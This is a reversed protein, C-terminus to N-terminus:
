VMFSKENHARRARVLDECQRVQLMIQLQLDKLVLGRCLSANRLTQNVQHKAEPRRQGTQDRVNLRGDESQSRTEQRRHESRLDENRSAEGKLYHVLGKTTEGRVIVLTQSTAM